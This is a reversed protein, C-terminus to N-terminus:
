DQHWMLATWFCSQLYRITKNEFFFFFLFSLHLPSTNCGASQCFDVVQSCAGAWLVFSDGTLAMKMGGEEPGKGYLKDSEKLWTHHLLSQQCWWLTPAAPQSLLWWPFSTKLHQVWCLCRFGPLNTNRAKWASPEYFSPNLSWLQDRPPQPFAQAKRKTADCGELSCAVKYLCPSVNALNWEM